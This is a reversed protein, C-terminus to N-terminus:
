IQENSKELNHKILPIAIGLILSVPWKPGLILM